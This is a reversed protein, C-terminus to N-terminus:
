DFSWFRWNAGVRIINGTNQFTNEIEDPLFPDLYPDVSTQLDSNFKSNDLNYFLYEVKVSLNKWVM